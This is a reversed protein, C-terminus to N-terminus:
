PKRFMYQVINRETINNEFFDLCGWFNWADVGDIPIKDINCTCTVHLDSLM